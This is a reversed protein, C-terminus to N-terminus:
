AQQQSRSCLSALATLFPALSAILFNLSKRRSPLFRLLFFDRSCNFGCPFLDIPHPHLVRARCCTMPVCHFFFVFILPFLFLVCSPFNHVISDYLLGLGRNDVRRHGPGQWSCVKCDFVGVQNQFTHCHFRNLILHRRTNNDILIRGSDHTISFLPFDISIFWCTGHFFFHTSVPFHATELWACTKCFHIVALLSLMSPHVSSAAVWGGDGVWRCECTCVHLRPSSQSSDM